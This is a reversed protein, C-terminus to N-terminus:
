RARSRRADRPATAPTLLGDRAVQMATQVLAELSVTELVEHPVQEDLILGAIGHLLSWLVFLRQMTSDGIAGEPLCASLAVLLPDATTRAAEALVPHDRGRPSPAWMLRYRAPHEVAYRVYAVAVVDLRHVADGPDAEVAAACSDKLALFAEAAVAALLAEKGAFHRYPAAQSVGALRAAGRLTVGAPGHRDLLRTAAAVMSRRLDGHHYTSRTRAVRAVPAEIDGM